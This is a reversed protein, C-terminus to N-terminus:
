EDKHEALFQLLAERTVKAVTTGRQTAVEQLKGALEDDVTIRRAMGRQRGIPATYTGMYEKMAEFGACLVLGGPLVCGGEACCEGVGAAASVVRNTFDGFSEAKHGHAKWMAFLPELVAELEGVKVRELFVRALVTQNPTGGLWLQRVLTLPLPFLFSLQQHSPLEIHTLCPPLPHHMVLCHASMVRSEGSCFSCGQRVAADGEGVKDLMARIRKLVSPLGREAETIALGCLPLAPCAM